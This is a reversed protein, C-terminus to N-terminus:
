PSYQILMSTELRGNVCILSSRQNLGRSDAQPAATCTIVPCTFLKWKSSDGRVTSASIGSGDTTVCAPGTWASGLIVARIAPSPCPPAKRTSCSTCCWLCEWTREWRTGPAGGPRGPGAACTSRMWSPVRRAHTESSCLSNEKKKKREWSTHLWWCARLYGVQVQPSSAPFCYNRATLVHRATRHPATRHPPLQPVPCLCSVKMSFCFFVWFLVFVDSKRVSLDLWVRLFCLSAHKSLDLLILEERAPRPESTFVLGHGSSGAEGVSATIGPIFHLLHLRCLAARRGSAASRFVDETGTRTDPSAVAAAERDGRLAAGGRQETRGCSSESPPFSRCLAGLMLLAAVRNFPCNGKFFTLAMCCPCRASVFVSVVSRVDAWSDCVLSCAPFLLATWSKNDGPDKSLLVEALRARTMDGPSPRGVTQENLYGNTM